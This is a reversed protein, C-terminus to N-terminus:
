PQVQLRLRFRGIISKDGEWHRWHKLEIDGAGIKKGKFTFAVEGGSGVAGSPYRPEPELAEVLETDYRDIAWRYGTSANEALTVRVAEGVRIDVTRGNDTESLLLMKPAKEADACSAASPSCILAAGVLAAVRALSLIHM